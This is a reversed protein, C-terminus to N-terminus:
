QFFYHTVASSSKNSVYSPERDQCGLVFFPATVRGWGFGEGPPFTAFIKSKQRILFTPPLREMLPM